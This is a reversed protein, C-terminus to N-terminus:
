AELFYFNAELTLHLTLIGRRGECKLAVVVQLSFQALASYNNYRYFRREKLYLSAPLPFALAKYIGVQFEYCPKLNVSQRKLVPM